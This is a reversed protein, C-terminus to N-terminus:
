FQRGPPENHLHQFALSGQKFYQLLPLIKGVTRLQMTLTHRSRPPTITHATSVCHFCYDGSEPNSTPALNLLFCCLTRVPGDAVMERDLHRWVGQGTDCGGAPIAWIGSLHCCKRQYTRQVRGVATNNYSGNARLNGM